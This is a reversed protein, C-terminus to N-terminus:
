GEFADVGEDAAAKRLARDTTALPLRNRLALELYAADYVSLNRRKALPRLERFATSRGGPDLAIPLALLMHVFSEAAAADIRRRREAVLLGNAVELTWIEPVIADRRRLEDLVGMVYDGGEDEFCWSLAVSADLVFSM